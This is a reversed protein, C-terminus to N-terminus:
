IHILSLVIVTDKPVGLSPFRLGILQPNNNAPNKTDLSTGNVDVIGTTMDEVGDGYSNSISSIVTANSCYAGPEVSGPEYTLELSPSAVENSDAAVAFRSDTGSTKALFVTLPNGGCWEPLDIVEQIM